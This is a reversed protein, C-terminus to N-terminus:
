YEIQQTQYSMIPDVIETKGPETLEHFGPIDKMLKRLDNWQNRADELKLRMFDISTSLDQRTKKESRDHIILRGVIPVAGVLATSAIQGSFQYVPDAMNLMFSLTAGAISFVLTITPEWSSLAREQREQFPKTIRNALLLYSRYVNMAGGEAFSFPNELLMQMTQIYTHWEDMHRVEHIDSLRLFALSKINLMENVLSFTTRKLLHVLEEATIASRKGEIRLEQLATRPLSGVPTILYGRVSDPLNCNYSLDLLQKIQAAFPKSKDFKQEAPNEGATVFANYLENRTVLRGESHMDICFHSVDALRKRFSVEASTDLNLDRLYATIDGATMSSVFRNFPQSLYKGALSINEQDNWSLRVCRVRVEECLQQWLKQNPHVNYSNVTRPGSHPPDIPANEGLLFPIIAGEELLAKFAERVNGRHEYDQFIAPNNYIFARNIVVQQGNILSRLYEARVQKTLRRRLGETVQGKDFASKLLNQPLWQNDLAQVMVSIPQLQAPELRDFEVNGIYGKEQVHDYSKNQEPM